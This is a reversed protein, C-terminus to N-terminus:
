AVEEIYKVAEKLHASEFMTKGTKEDKHFFVKRNVDFKIGNGWTAMVEVDTKLPVELEVCLRMCDNMRIIEEHTITDDAIMLLEDHVTAMLSWGKSKLFADMRLMAIKMIDASSGQIIANVAQRRVREVSKKVAQFKQKLKYPLQPYKKKNWFDQPLNKTGLLKLMQAKCDDYIIAQQRHKPFRRKRGYLTEVYENEKVFEWISEIWAKVKPYAEYFDHIFQEAEELTINLQKSLTWMSTGYMVALLGTKMMKRYKSGDGCEEIPKKFTRSALTAYLDGGTLYPKRLEEDGTIHSLVRPEIQSFDIGFIVKGDPAIVLKRARAPLNQLNPESSSFRGTDTKDQNFQGHIRGDSKVKEPLASIYTSNLKFLDKYKLLTELVPLEGSLIELTKKDTSRKGSVDEMEFDDYLVKQLQAPSKLNIDGLEAKIEKELEVLYETLEHGYEKGFEMDCLMGTREMDVVVPLLPSEIEYFVRKLGFMKQFFQEQWKGLLYCGHTDKCAYVKAVELPVEHFPANKGFLQEFTYSDEKFGLHNKYKTLLDKLRNSPENENLLKMAIQTDHITGGINYKHRIFMHKDFKANHLFKKTNSMLYPKLMKLVYERPLQKEGTTHGFPIYVHVDRKPLTISIGVMVDVYVDLGTTETDLGTETEDELYKVLKEMQNKETILFYNDPCHEVLEKIRQERKRQELVAYLEKAKSKSFKGVPIPEKTVPDELGLEGSEIADKVEQLWQRHVTKSDKLEWIGNKWKGTKPNEYGNWVQEWTPEFKSAEKKQTAKKSRAKKKTEKVQEQEFEETLDFTLEEM